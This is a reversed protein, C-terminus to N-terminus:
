VATSRKSIPRSSSPKSRDNSSGHNARVPATFVRDERASLATSPMSQFSTQTSFRGNFPMPAESLPSTSALRGYAYRGKHKSEKKWENQHWIQMREQHNLLRLSGITSYGSVSPTGPSANSQNVHLGACSAIYIEAPSSAYNLSDTLPLTLNRPSAPVQPRIPDARMIQSLASPSNKRHLM